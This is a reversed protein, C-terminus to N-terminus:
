PRGAHTGARRSTPAAAKDLSREGTQCGVECGVMAARLSCLLDAREGQRARGESM